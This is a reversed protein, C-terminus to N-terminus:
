LLRYDVYANTTRDTGALTFSLGSGSYHSNLASISASIQSDPINGQTLASGAQIVHWYVPITAAFKANADTKLQIKHAAFHAEAAAIVDDSPTSACVSTFNGATPAAVASTIALALASFAAFLM